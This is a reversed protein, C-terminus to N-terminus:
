LSRRQKLNKDICTFSSPPVKALNHTPSDPADELLSDGGADATVDTVAHYSAATTERLGAVFVFSSLVMNGFELRLNEM